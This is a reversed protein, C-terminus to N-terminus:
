RLVRRRVLSAGRPRKRLRCGWRGACGAAQGARAKRSRPPGRVAAPQTGFTVDLHFADDMRLDFDQLKMKGWPFGVLPRNKGEYKKLAPNIIGSIIPGLLQDGECSLTKIRGNLKDDVDVRAKFRLGAPLFGIRTDVKLDARMSRGDVVDLKLKTRDVTVGYKGAAERAAKLLLADIDKKTVELSLRGDRADSLTLMPQGRKDRRFDLKADSASMGVLLKAREVLLPRAVFELNEVRLSGESKGVPKLKKTKKKMHVVVQSLDITMADLYPYAAAGEIRVLDADAPVTLRSEWGQSLSLDLM